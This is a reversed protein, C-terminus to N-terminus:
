FESNASHVFAFHAIFLSALEVMTAMCERSRRVSHMASTRTNGDQMRCEFEANQIRFESNGMDHMATMPAPGAPHTNAARM